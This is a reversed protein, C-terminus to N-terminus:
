RLGTRGIVAVREGPEIVLNLNTLAQIGTEFHTFSVNQFEIKGNTKPTHDPNANTIQPEASFFENIRKQSAAARQIISAVWGISTVPWTLLNVYIIFEAMNGPTISGDIIRLGGIYIVLLTSLGIMLVMLPLFISEIKALHISREKYEKSDAAYQDIAMDEQAYSKIVRIGSFFEQASTTLYSLQRQIAKVVM